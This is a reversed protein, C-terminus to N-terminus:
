MIRSSACRGMPASCSTWPVDSCSSMTTGGNRPPQRSSEVTGGEAKKRVVRAKGEAYQAIIDVNMKDNRMLSRQLFTTDWYPAGELFLVQIQQDIVNLYTLARNNETDTEGELPTSAFKTSTSGSRRSRSTSTSRSKRNRAPPFRQSRCSRTAACSNSMSRRWNAASSGCPARLHAGKAERLLLAPLEHHPRGRGQGQGAQRHPRRLHPTQRARANFGTKRPNVLELDHGDSLLILARAGTNRRLSGLMATVSDHVRTTTGDVKLQSTSTIPLAEAAFRFLWLNPDTVAGDKAILGSDALLTRAADSRTGQEVDRQAMSRSDDIGVMIVRQTLVPPLQELRSPQLLVVLLLGIGVLRFFLLTFKQAASLRSGVRLYTWIAATALAAGILFIAAAPLVPDFFVRSLHFAM